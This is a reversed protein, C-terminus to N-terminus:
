LLYQQYRLGAVWRSLRLDYGPHFVTQRKTLGAGSFPSLVQYAAHAHSALMSGVVLAFACM